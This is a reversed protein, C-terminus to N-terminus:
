NRSEDDRWWKGCKICWAEPADMWCNNCPCEEWDHECTLAEPM